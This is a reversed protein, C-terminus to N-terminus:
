KDKCILSYPPQDGPITRVDALKSRWPYFFFLSVHRRLKKHTEVDRDGDLYSERERERERVIEEGHQTTKIETVLNTGLPGFLLLVSFSSLIRCMVYM